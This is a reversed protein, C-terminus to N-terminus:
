VGGNVPVVKGSIYTNELSLWTIVKAVEDSDSVRRLASYKKYDQVLEPTIESSLGEDLLGLAIMNVLIKKSGLEKALAMTLGSLMGQSAAYDVPASVSQTRDIGGVFVMSGGGKKAMYPAFERAALFASRGNIDVTRSWSEDSINEIPWVSSVGACHILVSPMRQDNSLASVLVRMCDVKLFDSHYGHGGLEKELVSARKDSNCYTFAASIGREALARLVAGGVAGTGGLVLAQPRTELDVSM